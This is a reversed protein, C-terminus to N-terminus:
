AGGADLAPSKNTPGSPVGCPPRIAIAASVATGGFGWAGVAPSFSGAAPVQWSARPPRPADHGVSVGPEPASTFDSVTGEEIECRRLPRAQHGLPGACFRCRVNSDCDISDGRCEHQVGGSTNYHHCEFLFIAWCHSRAFINALHRLFGVDRRETLFRQRPWHPNGSRLVRM